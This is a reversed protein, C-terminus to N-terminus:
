VERIVRFERVYRLAAQVCFAPGPDVFATGVRTPCNLIADRQM